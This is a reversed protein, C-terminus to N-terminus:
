LAPRDRRLGRTRTGDAGSYNRDNPVEPAIRWHSAGSGPHAGGQDRLFFYLSAALAVGGAVFGVNSVFANRRADENLEVGRRTCVDTRCQALSRDNADFALLGFVGGTALGAAAVGGFVWGLTRPPPAKPVPDFVGLGAREHSPPRFPPVHVLIPSAGEGITLRRSWDKEGAARALVVHPGPDVPVGAIFTAHEVVKGDIFVLFGAPEPSPPKVRIRPVKAELEQVHSQALMVRDSRGTQVAVKLSEKFEGLATAPKGEGEHCLALALLTGGGHDLGYAEELLPCATAFDGDGMLKRARQFLEEARVSAEDALVRGANAICFLLASLGFRYRM